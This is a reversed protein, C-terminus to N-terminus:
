NFEYIMENKYLDAGGMLYKKMYDKAKNDDLYYYKYVLALNKFFFADKTQHEDGKKLANIMLETRDSLAYLHALAKYASILKKDKVVAKNLELIASPHMGKKGYLIGREELAKAGAGKSIKHDLNKRYKEFERYSINSQGSDPFISKNFKKWLLAMMETRLTHKDFDNQPKKKFYSYLYKLAQSSDKIQYLHLIALNKLTLTNSSDLQLAKRFTIDAKRDLEREVYFNGALNLYLVNRPNRQLAKEFHEEAKGHFGKQKYVYALWRQVEANEPFKEEGIHLLKLAQNAEKVPFLDSKASPLNGWEDDKKGGYYKWNTKKMKENAITLLNIAQQVIENSGSVGNALENQVLQNAQKYNGKAISHRVKNQPELAKVIQDATLALVGAFIILTLIVWIYPRKKTRQAKPPTYVFKKKENGSEEQRAIPPKREQASGPPTPEKQELPVPPSCEIEVNFRSFYGMLKLALASDANDVIVYPLNKVSKVIEPIEKKQVKAVSIVLNKLDSDKSVHKLILSHKSM